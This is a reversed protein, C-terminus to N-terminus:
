LNHKTNEVNFAAIAINHLYTAPIYHSSCTTMMDATQTNKKKVFHSKGQIVCVEYAHSRLEM